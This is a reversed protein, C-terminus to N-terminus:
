DNNLKEISNLVEDWKFIINEKSFRKINSKANFSMEKRLSEDEILKCISSALGQIDNPKVLIGDIGDNIIDRPGTECDFSVVPLGFSMAELLVMPFGEFRSSMVYISSNLYQEDVKDIQGLFEVKDSIRYERVKDKIQKELEGNGAIRLIWDPHKKSVEKWAEVLMDFGKQYHFRGVALVVKNSATTFQNPYFVLPNQIAKVIAKCKLNNLYNDRDTETLTVIFKSKKAAIIRAIDRLKTGLNTKFNFHEWSIISTKIGFSAPYTFIRLIVDAEILVDFKHKKLVKRIEKVLPIFNKKNNESGNKLAIVKISEHLPFGSESSNALSMIYVEHNKSAMDNAIITTVRETGAKKSVDGVFFCIKM